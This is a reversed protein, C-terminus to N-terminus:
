GQKLTSFNKAATEQNLHLSSTELGQNPAYIYLCTGGKVDDIIDNHIAMPISPCGFSRGLRGQKECFDNCVYDAGHMVIARERAKHNLGKDLGDLRLSYGHEGIYTEACRYFGLSSKYSGPENSFSKAWNEGSNRGHAVLSKVLLKGKKIDIVYLRKETSPKSFDVISIIDTKLIQGGALLNYMGTLAESFIKYDLKADKLDLKEYLQTTHLDFTSVPDMVANAALFSTASANSNESHAPLQGLKPFVAILAAFLILLKVIKMSSILYFRHRFYALKKYIM